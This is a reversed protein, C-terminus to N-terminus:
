MAGDCECMMGNLESDMEELEYLMSEFDEVLCDDQIFDDVSVNENIELQSDDFIDFLLSEFGLEVVELPNDIMQGVVFPDAEIGLGSIDAVLDMDCQGDGDYDAYFLDYSGDRDIDVMMVENDLFSFSSTIETQGDGNIDTFEIDEFEFGLIDDEYEFVSNYNSTSM